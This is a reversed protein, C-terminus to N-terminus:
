YSPSFTNILLTSCLIAWILEILLYGIVKGHAQNKLGAFPLSLGSSPLTGNICIEVQKGQFYWITLMSVMQQSVFSLHDSQLKTNSVKGLIHRGTRRNFPATMAVSGALADEINLISGTNCWWDIDFYNILTTCVRCHCHLTWKNFKFSILQISAPSTCCTFLFTCKEMMSCKGCDEFKTKFFKAQVTHSAAALLLISVHTLATM